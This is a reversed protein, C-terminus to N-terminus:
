LPVSIEPTTNRGWFGWWFLLWCFMPPPPSREKIWFLYPFQSIVIYGYAYFILVNVFNLLCLCFMQPGPVYDLDSSDEWRWFHQYCYRCLVNGGTPNLIQMEGCRLSDADEWFTEKQLHVCKGHLWKTICHPPHLIFQILYVFLATHVFAWAEVRSIEELDDSEHISHCNWFALSKESVRDM